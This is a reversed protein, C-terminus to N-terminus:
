GATEIAEVVANVSELMRYVTNPLVEPMLKQMKGSLFGPLNPLLSEIGASPDYIGTNVRCKRFTERILRLETEYFM